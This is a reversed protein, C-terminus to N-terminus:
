SPVVFGNTNFSRQVLGDRDTRAGMSLATGRFAPTTPVSSRGPRRPTPFDPASHSLLNFGSRSPSLAEPLPACSEWKKESRSNAWPTSDPHPLVRREQPRFFLRGACRFPRSKPEGPPTPFYRGSYSLVSPRTQYASWSMEHRARSEWKRSTWTRTPLSIMTSRPLFRVGRPAGSGLRTPIYMQFQSLLNDESVSKTCCAPM